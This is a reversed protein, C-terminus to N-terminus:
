IRKIYIELTHPSPAKKPMHSCCISLWGNRHAADYAGSANKFFESKTAYKKAELICNEKTWKLNNGGIAGTKNKNLINWGSNRYLDVIQGELESSLKESIFNTLIKFNPALGTKTIHKYVADDKCRQLTWYGYRRM